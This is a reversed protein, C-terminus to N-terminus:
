ARGLVARELGSLDRLVEVHTFGADTFLNEVERAQNFGCEVMLYGNKELKAFGQVVLKRLINLGDGGGDLALVPEGRSLCEPDETQASTLYPPNATILSYTGPVQQLLDSRYAPLERALIDRSNGLSVELAEASIDALVVEAEPMEAQISIGVCGSGCCIDATRLCPLGSRLLTLATEVLLETEPRPILVREDVRFTYGFFEKFGLIYAVPRGGAREDIYGSFLEAAPSPVTEPLSALLKERPLSAARSLLLLSDLYPTRTVGTKELRKTAMSLLQSLTKAGTTSNM